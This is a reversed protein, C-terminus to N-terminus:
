NWAAVALRPQLFPFSRWPAYYVKAWDYAHSNVGKIALRNAPFLKAALVSLCSDIGIYGRAGKLLEVAEALRTKGQLDVLLPSDPIPGRDYEVVVGMLGSRELTKLCDAWDREDFDRGGWTAYARSRPVVVVYPAGIERPAALPYHLLSSGAYGPKRPFVKVISWDAVHAPLGGVERRVAEADFYVAGHTNLHVHKTLRPYNPLRAWLPEILHSKPCAYYAAEVREKEEPPMLSDLAMWDGVGGTVLVSLPSSAPRRSACGRCSALGPVFAAPACEGFLGCAHVPVATTHDCDHCGCGGCATETRTEPGLYRCPREVPVAKAKPRNLTIV